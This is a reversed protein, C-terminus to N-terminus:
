GYEDDFRGQINQKRLFCYDNEFKQTKEFVFVVANNMNHNKLIDFIPNGMHLLQRALFSNFILQTKSHNNKEM